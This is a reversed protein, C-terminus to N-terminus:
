ARNSACVSRWLPWYSRGIVVVPTM